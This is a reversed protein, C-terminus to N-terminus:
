QKGASAVEIMENFMRTYQSLALTHRPSCLTYRYGIVQNLYLIVLQHSMRTHWQQGAPAEERAGLYPPAPQGWSSGLKGGAQCWSSGM